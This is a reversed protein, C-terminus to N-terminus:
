RTRGAFYLPTNEASDVVFYLFPYCELTAIWPSVSDFKVHYVAAATELHCVTVYGTYDISDTDTCGVSDIGAIDVVGVTIISISM